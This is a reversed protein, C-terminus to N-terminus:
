REGLAEGFRRAMYDVLAIVRGYTMRRPGLIGLTGAPRQCVFYRATVLSCDWIDECRHEVGIQVHVGAQRPETEILDILSSKEELAKFLGRSKEWDQFEPQAM